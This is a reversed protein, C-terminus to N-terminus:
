ELCRSEYDNMYRKARDLERSPTKDTKKIFGNQKQYFEVEWEMAVEAYTIRSDINDYVIVKQM